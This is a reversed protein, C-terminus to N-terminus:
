GTSSPGRPTRRPRPRSLTGMFVGDELVAPEYVLAYNQITCRNGVRVGPGLYAGRGVICDAGVKADERVQALHWIRTGPGLTARPDIKARRAPM